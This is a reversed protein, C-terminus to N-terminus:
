FLDIRADIQIHLVLSSKDINQKQFVDMMETQIFANQTFTSESIFYKMFCSRASLHHFHQRLCCYCYHNLALVSLIIVFMRQVCKALPLMGLVLTVSGMMPTGPGAKKEPGTWKKSGSDETKKQVLSQQAEKVARAWQGALM